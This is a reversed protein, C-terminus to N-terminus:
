RSSSSAIRSNLESVEGDEGEDDDANSEEEGGKIEDEKLTLSLFSPKNRTAAARDVLPAPVGGSDGSTGVCTLPPSPHTSSEERASEEGEM